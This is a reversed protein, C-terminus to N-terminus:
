TPADGKFYHFGVIPGYSCLQTHASLLLLPPPPPTSFVSANPAVIFLPNYGQHPLNNPWVTFFGPRSIHIKKKKKLIGGSVGGGWKTGKRVGGM